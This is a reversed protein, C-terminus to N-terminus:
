SRSERARQIRVCRFQEGGVAKSSQEKSGLVEVRLEELTKTESSSTARM